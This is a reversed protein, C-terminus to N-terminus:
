SATQRRRPAPPRSAGAADAPADTCVLAIAANDRDADELCRLIREGYGGAQRLAEAGILEIVCPGMETLCDYLADLNRGYYAPLELAQALHDHAAERAHLRSCDIRHTNVM